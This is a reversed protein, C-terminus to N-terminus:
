PKEEWHAQDIGEDGYSVASIAGPEWNHWFVTLDVSHENINTIIAPHRCVGYRSPSGADQVFIVIDGVDVM